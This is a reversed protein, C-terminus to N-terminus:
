GERFVFRAMGIQIVDEHRLVRQKIAEANVRTGSKSDLDSLTYGQSDVTIRAHRAEVGPGGIRIESAADSGLSVPKPPLPIATRGAEPNQPVLRATRLSMTANAGFAPKAGPTTPPLPVKPPEPLKLVQLIQTQAAPIDLVEADMPIDVDEAVPMEQTNSPGHAAAQILEEESDFVELFRARLAEGQKHAATRESLSAEIANLRKSYEEENFEGLKRRLEIEQRDLKVAEHANSIETLAGRLRAYSERAKQRLPEAKTEIESVQRIYDGHVRSFVAPDFDAKVDELGSLRKRLIDAEEKLAKLADIVGLDVGSLSEPLERVNVM